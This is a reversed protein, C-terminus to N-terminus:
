AVLLFWSICTFLGIDQFAYARTISPIMRSFRSMAIPLIEMHWTLVPLIDTSWNARVLYPPLKSIYTFFVHLCLDCLWANEFCRVVGFPFPGEKTISVWLARWPLFHFVFQISWLWHIKLEFLFQIDFLFIFLELGLLVFRISHVLRAKVKDVEAIAESTNMMRLRDSNLMEVRAIYLMNSAVQWQLFCGFKMLIYTIINKKDSCTSCSLFCHLFNHTHICVQTCQVM